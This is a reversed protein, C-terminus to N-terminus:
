FNDPSPIKELEERLDELTRHGYVGNTVDSGFSHGMMRKRDAESV